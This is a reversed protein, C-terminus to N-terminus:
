DIRCTRFMSTWSIPKTAIAIGTKPYVFPLPLVGRDMNCERSGIPRRYISEIRRSHLATTAVITRGTNSCM